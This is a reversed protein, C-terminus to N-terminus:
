SRLARLFRRGAATAAVFCAVLAAAVLPFNSGRGVAHTLTTALEDGKRSLGAFQHSLEAAAPPRAIAVPAAPVSSGPGPWPQGVASARGQAVSPRARSARPPATPPPTSAAPAAVAAEGASAPAASQVAAPAAPEVDVGVAGAANLVGHCGPGCGQRTTTELLRQVTSPADLGLGRLQAAVGAVHPAAASSGAALIYRDHM